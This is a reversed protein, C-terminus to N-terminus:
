FIIFVIEHIWICKNLQGWSSLLQILTEHFIIAPYFGVSYTAKVYTNHSSSIYYHALPQTMDDHVTSQHRSNYVDFIDSMLVHYFGACLVVNGCDAVLLVNNKLIRLQRFCSSNELLVLYM